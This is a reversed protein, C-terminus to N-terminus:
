KGHKSTRGQSEENRRAAGIITRGIGHPATAKGATRVGDHFGDVGRYVNILAHRGLVNAAGASMGAHQSLLADDCWGVGLGDVFTQPFYRFFDLVTKECEPSLEFVDVHVDFGAQPLDNAFRRTSQM